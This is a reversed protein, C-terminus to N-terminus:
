PIFPIASRNIPVSGRGTADLLIRATRERQTMQDGRPPGVRVDLVPLQMPKLPRM